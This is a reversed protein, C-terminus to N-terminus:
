GCSRDLVDNVRQIAVEGVLESFHKLREEPSMSVFRRLGWYKGSQSAERADASLEDPRQPRKLRGLVVQAAMANMGAKRLFLEWLTEDQILGVMEDQNGPYSAEAISRFAHQCVLSWTWRCLSSSRSSSDVLGEEAPIWLPLVGVGSSRLKLSACFASFDVMVKMQSEVEPAGIRGAVSVLVYVFEFESILHKIAEHPTNTIMRSKQGPLNKQTLAQFNTYLICTRPNLIIDPLRHLDRYIMTLSDMGQREIFSFLQRNNVLGSDLIITQPELLQSLEPLPVTDDTDRASKPTSPVEIHEDPRRLSGSRALPRCVPIDPFCHAQSLLIPDAEIEHLRSLPDEINQKDSNLLALKKFKSGRLDLFSALSGSASFTDASPEIGNPLTSKEIRRMKARFAPEPLDDPDNISEPSTKPWRLKTLSTSRAYRQRDGADIGNDPPMIINGKPSRLLPPSARRSCADGVTMDEAGAGKVAHDEAPRKQPVTRAPTEAALTVVLGDDEEMEEEAGGNPDLFRLGPEKYLLQESRLVHDPIGVISEISPGTEPKEKLDIQMLSQPIPIWNLKTEEKPRVRIAAIGTGKAALSASSIPTPAKRLDFTKEDDLRPVQIRIAMDNIGPSETVIEEKLGDDYQELLQILKKDEADEEKPMVYSKIKNLHSFDIFEEFEDKFAVHKAIKPKEASEPPSPVLPVELKLGRSRCRQNQEPSSELKLSQASLANCPNIPSPRFAENLISRVKDPSGNEVDSTRIQDETKAVHEVELSLDDADLSYESRPELNHLPLPPLRLEEDEFALQPTLM